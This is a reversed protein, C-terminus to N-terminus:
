ATQKKQLPGRVSQRKAWHQAGRHKQTGRKAGYHSCCCTQGSRGGRYYRPGEVVNVDVRDPRASGIKTVSPGYEEPLLGVFLDYATKNLEYQNPTEM